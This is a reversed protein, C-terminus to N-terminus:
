EGLLRAGELLHHIIRDRKDAFDLFAQTGTPDAASGDTKWIYTAGTSGVVFRLISGDKTASGPGPRLKLKGGLLEPDDPIFLCLEGPKGAGCYSFVGLRGPVGDRPGSPGEVLEAQHLSVLQGKM